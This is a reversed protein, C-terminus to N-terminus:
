GAEMTFNTLALALAMIAALIPRQSGNKFAGLGESNAVKVAIDPDIGRKTAGDRIYSEVAGIQPSSPTSGSAVATPVYGPSDPVSAFGREAM